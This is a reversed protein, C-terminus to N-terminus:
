VGNTKDALVSGSGQQKSSLGKAGPRHGATQHPANEADFVTPHHLM